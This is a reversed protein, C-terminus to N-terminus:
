DQISVTKLVITCQQLSLLERVKMVGCSMRLTTTTSEPKTPLIGHTTMSHVTRDLMDAKLRIAMTILRFWKLGIEELLLQELSGIEM